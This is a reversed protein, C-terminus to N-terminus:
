KFIQMRELSVKYQIGPIFDDQLNKDYNSIYVVERLWYKIM